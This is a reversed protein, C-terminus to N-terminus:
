TDTDLIETYFDFDYLRGFLQSEERHQFPIASGIPSISNGYSWYPVMTPSHSTRGQWHEFSFIFNDFPLIM